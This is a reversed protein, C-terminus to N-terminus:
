WHDHWCSFQASLFARSSDRTFVTQSVNSSFSQTYPQGFICATSWSLPTSTLTHVSRRMMRSFPRYETVSLFHFGALAFAVCHVALVKHPPLEIGVTQFGNPHTVDGVDLRHQATHVEGHHKVQAVLLHHAIGYTLKDVCFKDFARQGFGEHTTTMM